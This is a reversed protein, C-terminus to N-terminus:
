DELLKVACLPLCEDDEACDLGNPEKSVITGTSNMFGGDFWIWKTNLMKFVEYNALDEVASYSALGFTINYSYEGAGYGYSCVKYYYKGNIDKVKPPITFLYRGKKYGHIISMPTNSTVNETKLVIAEKTLISPSCYYDNIAISALGCSAGTYKYKSELKFTIATDIM